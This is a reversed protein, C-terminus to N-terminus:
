YIADLVLRAATHAKLYWKPPNALVVAITVEPRDAPAYGVFWSYGLYSPKDRDLSGTKGAVDVSLLRRGRRDHFGKFATGSSCTAKMMTGVARAVAPALARFPKAAPLETRTDGDILAEVVRPVVRLGDSAFVNALIAGGLPSLESSWFGAAMRAFELEGDPVTFRSAEADLAFTPATEFGIARAVAALKDRHKALYRNALKAIIANQSEAVAFGLTECRSDRKDDRLNSAEVSRFGDHFCTRQDATVGGQLLAAATVLKFISAAPAWVTTALHPANQLVPLQNQRGALALIRGDKAMVVIAGMPAKAQTLVREAAQQLAPDLTLVARRGDKLPAVFRDNEISAQALDVLGRLAADGELTPGELAVPAIALKSSPAEGTAIKGLGIAALAALLVPLTVSRKREFM